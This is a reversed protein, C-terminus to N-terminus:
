IMLSYHFTDYDGSYTKLLECIATVVGQKTFLNEINKLNEM